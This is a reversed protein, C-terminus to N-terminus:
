NIGQYFLIYPTGKNVADNFSSKSVIQDNFIYWQQDIISKCIGIFHGSEGSEGFHTIVGFLEYNKYQNFSPVFPSIDFIQPFDVKVQYINGKGRNLVICLIKPTMFLKPYINANSTEHCNNCFISNEGQLIDVKQNYEFCDKLTITNNKNNNILQIFTKIRQNLLLLPGTQISYKKAEELPFIIFNFINFSYNCFKCNWCQTTSENIGYFNNSIITTNEENFHKLFLFLQSTKPDMYFNQNINNNQFVAKIKLEQHIRQLIFILLDKSDNAAVKEFLENLEGIVNRFHTPKFSPKYNHAPPFLNKITNAYAYTLPYIKYNNKYIDYNPSKLLFNTLEKCNSLCQLTANMYCTAGINELGVPM